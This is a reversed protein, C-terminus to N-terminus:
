CYQGNIFASEYDSGSIIQFTTVISTGNSNVFGGNVFTANPIEPRLRYQFGKGTPTMTVVRDYRGCFTKTVGNNNTVVQRVFNNPLNCVEQKTPFPRINGATKTGVANYFGESNRKPKRLYSIVGIVGLLALGGIIYEKKM